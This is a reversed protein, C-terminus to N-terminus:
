RVVAADDPDDLGVLVGCDEVLSAAQAPLSGLARTLVSAGIKGGCGGCRMKSEAFLAAAELGLGGGQTVEAGAPTAATAAKALMMMPDPLDTSYKRMFTRDISDKWNWLWGGELSVWGTTILSLWTTQPVFPVLPEECLFHRINAALPPGQRVAFVGAKPRPHATCSAVDGAAFVNGPGGDSQLFENVALFGRSDTPLGTEKLWSAASAKCDEGGGM